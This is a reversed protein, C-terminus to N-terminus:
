EDGKDGPRNKKNKDTAKNFLRNLFDFVPVGTNEDDMYKDDEYCIKAYCNFVIVLMFVSYLVKSAIWVVGFRGLADINSIFISLIDVVIGVTIFVSNVISWGQIKNLGVEKSVLYIAIHICILLAPALFNQVYELTLFVTNNDYGFIFMVVIVLSLLLFSASVIASSLFMKNLGSLKYLAYLMIAAGLMYTFTGIPTIAGFYTLFCGFFLVGFGM